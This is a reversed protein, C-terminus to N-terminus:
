KNLYKGRKLHCCVRIDLSRHQFTACKQPSSKTLLNLDLMIKAPSSVIKHNQSFTIERERVIRFNLSVNKGEMEMYLNPFTRNQGVRVLNDAM